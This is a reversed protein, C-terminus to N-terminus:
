QSASPRARASPFVIGIAKHLFIRPVVRNRALFVQMLLEGCPLIGGLGICLNAFAAAYKRRWMVLSRAEIACWEATVKRWNKPWQCVVFNRAVGFTPEGVDIAGTRLLRIFPISCSLRDQEVVVAAERLLEDRYSNILEVCAASLDREISQDFACWFVSPSLMVNLRPIIVHKVFFYLRGLADTVRVDSSSQVITATARARLRDRLLNVLQPVMDRTVTFGMANVKDYIAGAELANPRGQLLWDIDTLIRRILQEEVTPANNPEALELTRWELHRSNDTIAIVQLDHRAVRSAIDVYREIVIGVLAAAVNPAHQLDIEAECHHAGDFLPHADSARICPECQAGFKTHLVEVSIKALLRVQDEFTHAESAVFTGSAYRARVSLTM